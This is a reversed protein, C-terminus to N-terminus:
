FLLGTGANCITLTVCKYVCMECTSLQHKHLKSQAVEIITAKEM